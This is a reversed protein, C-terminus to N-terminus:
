SYRVKPCSNVETIWGNTAYRLSSTTNVYNHIISESPNHKKFHFSIAEKLKDKTIWGNTAYKLSNHIISVSPNYKRFNLLQKKSNSFAELM